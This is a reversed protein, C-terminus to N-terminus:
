CCQVFPTNSALTMSGSLTCSVSDCLMSDDFSGFVDDASGSPVPDGNFVFLATFNSNSITHIVALTPGAAFGLLVVGCLQIAWYKLAKFIM